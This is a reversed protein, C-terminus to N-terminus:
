KVAGVNNAWQRYTWKGKPDNEDKKFMGARQYQRYIRYLEEGFDDVGSLQSPQLIQINDSPAAGMRNEPGGDVPAAGRRPAGKFRGPFQKRVRGASHNLADTISANENADLFNGAVLDTYRGLEPDMTYWPNQEAFTKIEVIEAPTFQADGEGPETGPKPEVAGELDPTTQKAKLDAPM